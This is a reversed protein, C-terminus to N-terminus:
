MPLSARSDVVTEAIAKMAPPQQEVARTMLAPLLQLGHPGVVGPRPGEVRSSRLDSCSSRSSSYRCCHVCDLRLMPHTDYPDILILQGNIESRKSGRIPDPDAPGSSLARRGNESFVPARSFDVTPPFRRTLM